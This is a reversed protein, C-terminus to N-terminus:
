ENPVTLGYDCAVDRLRTQMDAPSESDDHAEQLDRAFDTLYGEVGLVPAVPSHQVATCSDGPEVFRDPILWGLACARPKKPNYNSPRTCCTDDEVCKQFGQYKLGRWVGNFARQQMTKTEEPTM